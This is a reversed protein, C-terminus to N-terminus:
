LPLPGLLRSSRLSDLASIVTEVAEGAELEILLKRTGCSSVTEMLHGYNLTRFSASLAARTKKGLGSEAAFPDEGSRLSEWVIKARGTGGLLPGM